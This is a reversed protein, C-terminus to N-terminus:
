FQFIHKNTGLAFNFWWITRKSKKSKLWECPQNSEYSWYICSKKENCLTYNELGEKLTLQSEGLNSFSSSPEKNGYCTLNLNQGKRWLYSPMKSSITNIKLSQFHSIVTQTLQHWESQAMHGLHGKVCQPMLVYQCHFFDHAAEGHGGHQHTCCSYKHSSQWRETDGLMCHRHGSKGHVSRQCSVVTCEPRSPLYSLASTICSHSLRPKWPDPHSGTFFVLSFYRVCTYRSDQCLDWAKLITPEEM